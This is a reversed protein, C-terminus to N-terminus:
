KLSALVRERCSEDSKTLAFTPFISRPIGMPRGGFAPPGGFYFPAFFGLTRGLFAGFLARSQSIVGGAMARKGLPYLTM